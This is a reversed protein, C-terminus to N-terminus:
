HCACSLRADVLRPLLIHSDLEGLIKYKKENVSGQVRCVVEQCEMLSRRKVELGVLM